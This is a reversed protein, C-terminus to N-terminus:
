TVGPREGSFSAHHDKTPKIGIQLNDLMTYNSKMIGNFANQVAEQSNGTAAVIDAEAKVIGHALEAAAEENGGLAEKLGTAFGNVQQLYENQSMQVTKYAESANKAVTEYATGFMLEAGGRLQELEGYAEAVDKGLKIAAAGAALTAAGIAKMTTGAASSLKGFFGKSKKETDDLSKQYESNDGLIKFIVKSDAM